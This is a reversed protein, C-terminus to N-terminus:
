KSRTAEFFAHRMAKDYDTESSLYEGHLPNQMVSHLWKAEQQDLTLTVKVETSIEVKM